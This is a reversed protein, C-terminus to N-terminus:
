RRRARAKIPKAVAGECGCRVWVKVIIALSAIITIWQAWMANLMSPWVALVIVILSLVTICWNVCKM